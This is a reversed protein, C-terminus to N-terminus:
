HILFRDLTRLRDCTGFFVGAAREFHVEQFTFGAIIAGPPDTDSVALSHISTRLPGAESVLTIEKGQIGAPSDYTGPAVLVTDGDEAVSIADVILLYDDPVRIVEAHAATQTQASFLFLLLFLRLLISPRM